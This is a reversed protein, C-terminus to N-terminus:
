TGGIAAWFRGLDGTPDVGYAIMLWNRLVGFGLFVIIGGIWSWRPFRPCFSRRQFFRVWAVADLVLAAVCGTTVLANYRLAAAVDFKLLAAIARTGGCLPCYLFLVDHMMCGVFSRPLMSIGVRYLPFLLVLLVAGAHLLLFKKRKYKM